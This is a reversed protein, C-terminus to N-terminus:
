LVGAQAQVGWDLPHQGNRIGGIWEGVRKGDGFFLRIRKPQKARGCIRKWDSMEFHGSGM